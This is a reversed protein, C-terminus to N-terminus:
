LDPAVATEVGIFKKVYESTINLYLYPDNDKYELYTRPLTELAVAPEIQTGEGWENFSTISFL